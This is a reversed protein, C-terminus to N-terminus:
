SSVAYLFCVEMLTGAITKQCVLLFLKFPFFKVSERIFSSIAACLFYVM